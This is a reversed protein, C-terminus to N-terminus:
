FVLHADRFANFLTSNSITITQINRIANQICFEIDNKFPKTLLYKIKELIAPIPLFQPPRDLICFNCNHGTLWSIHDPISQVNAQLNAKM